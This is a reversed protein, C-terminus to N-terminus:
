THFNFPLKVRKKELLIISRLNSPALDAQSDPLPVIQLIFLFHLSLRLVLYIIELGPLYDRFWSSKCSIPENEPTCKHAGVYTQYDGCMERLRESVQFYSKTFSSRLKKKKNACDLAWSSLQLVADGLLNVKQIMTQNYNIVVCIKAMRSEDENDSQAVQPKTCYMWNWPSIFSM